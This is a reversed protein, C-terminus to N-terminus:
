VVEEFFTYSAKAILFMINQLHESVSHDNDLESHRYITTALEVILDTTLERGLAVRQLFTDYEKCSGCTFWNQKICLNRLDETHLRRHETYKTM